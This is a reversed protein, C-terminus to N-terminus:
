QGAETVFTASGAHDATRYMSPSFRQHASLYVDVVTDSGKGWGNAPKLHSLSAAKIANGSPLGQVHDSVALMLALAAFVGGSLYFGRMTMNKQVFSHFRLAPTNDSFDNGVYAPEAALLAAMRLGFDPSLFASTDSSRLIDGIQHYDNWTRHAAPQRLVALMQEHEALNLEGDAFASIQPNITKNMNM